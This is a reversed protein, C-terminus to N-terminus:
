PHVNPPGATGAKLRHRLVFLWWLFGIALVILVTVANQNNEAPVTLAAIVAVCWVLGLAVVLNLWRGLDFVGETAKPITKRKEAIATAIMTLAYTLYYTLGVMAYIKGVLGSNLLNLGIAVVTVLIIAQVPAKSRAGVRQLRGSGPLMNDRSLAFTMRTAVAMNAILCAFISAFAVVTMLARAFPGLQESILKLVPNESGSLFQAPGTPMAMALLAFVVFGIIGSIVVSRFMARPAAKRPNVTEEALDAAGEWGLLVYVPLLGALAVSGLTITNGSLPKTDTLIKLGQTHDFFVLVGAALALVLLVTGVLEISAGFNNVRTAIKVGVINLAAVVITCGISLAQIQHTTPNEWIEPAFVTGIAAATAATGALFSILAIWGTFWGFHPGVLRSSWQYAYGTIPMRGSLHAYVAVLTLVAPLVLLWLLVAVGGIRTFPDAFLTVVGTNISVMSFALAFATFSSMSRNLQQGYGLAALDDADSLRTEPPDDTATM